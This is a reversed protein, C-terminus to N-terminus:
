SGRRATGGGALLYGDLLELGVLLALLDAVRTNRLTGNTFHAEAAFKAVVVDDAEHFREELVLADEHNELVGLVIQQLDDVVVGLLGSMRNGRGGDLADHKLQEVPALVQVGVPDQM